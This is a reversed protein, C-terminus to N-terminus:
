ECVAVRDSADNVRREGDVGTMSPLWAAILAAVYGCLFAPWVLHPVRAAAAFLAITALVKIFEGVMVRQLAAGVSREPVSARKSAYFTTVWAVAAGILVSMVAPRGGAVLSLAAVVVTTIAQARMCRFALSSAHPVDSGNVEPRPADPSV